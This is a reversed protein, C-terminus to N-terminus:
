LWVVLGLGLALFLACLFGLRCRLTEEIERIEKM